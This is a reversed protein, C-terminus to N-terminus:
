DKHTGLIEYRVDLVRVQVWNFNKFSHFIEGFTSESTMFVKPLLDGHIGCWELLSFYQDQGQLQKELLFFKGVAFPVALIKPNCATIFFQFLSRCQGYSVLIKLFYPVNNLAIEYPFSFHGKSLVITWTHPHRMAPIFSWKSQSAHIDGSFISAM